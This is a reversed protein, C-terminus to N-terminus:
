SNIVVTVGHCAMVGHWCMVHSWPMMHCRCVVPPLHPVSPCRDGPRAGVQVNSLAGLGGSKETVGEKLSRAKLMLNAAFGFAGGTQGNQQGNEVGEGM